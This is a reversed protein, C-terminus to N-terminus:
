MDRWDEEDELEREAARGELERITKELENISLIKRKFEDMLTPAATASLVAVVKRDFEIENGIIRIM